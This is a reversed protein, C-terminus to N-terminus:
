GQRMADRIGDALQAPTMGYALPRVFRGKPDMLYVVTTHDVLYDDGSGTKQAYARYAKVAAAVQEPTGTLAITTKPFPGGEVYSKLQAPTDREPDVTIFVAQFDKARRGLEAEATGLATLTAPCFDPCFTYGFFVASWKGQLISEDVPRGNQDVLKFPGGVLSPEPAREEQCAALLAASCLALLARRSPSPM